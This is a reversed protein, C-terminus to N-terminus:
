EGTHRRIEGAADPVFRLAAELDGTELVTANYMARQALEDDPDLGAALRKFLAVSEDRRGDFYYAVALYFTPLNDKPYKDHCEQFKGLAETFWSEATRGDDSLYRVRTPVGQWMQFARLGETFLRFSDTATFGHRFRKKEPRKLRGTIKSWLGM